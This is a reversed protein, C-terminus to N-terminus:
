SNIWDKKMLLMEWGGGAHGHSQRKLPKQGRIKHPFTESRLVFYV